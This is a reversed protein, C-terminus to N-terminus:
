NFYPFFLIILSSVPRFNKFFCGIIYQSILINIVNACLIITRYVFKVRPAKKYAPCGYWEWSRHICTKFSVTHVQRVRLEYLCRLDTPSQLGVRLLHQWLLVFLLGKPFFSSIILFGTLVNFFETQMVSLPLSSIGCTSFIASSCSLSAIFPMLGFFRSNNRVINSLINVFISCFYGIHSM